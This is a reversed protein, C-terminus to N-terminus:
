ETHSDSDDFSNRAVLAAWGGDVREWAKSGVLRLGRALVIGNVKEVDEPNNTSRFGELQLLWSPEGLFKVEWIKQNPNHEVLVRDGSQQADRRAFEDNITEAMRKALDDTM